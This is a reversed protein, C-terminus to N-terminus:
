GDSAPPATSATPREVSWETRTVNGAADSVEARITVVDSTNVPWWNTSGVRSSRATAAPPDLTVTRWPQDEGAQYQLALSDAKVHWREVPYTM